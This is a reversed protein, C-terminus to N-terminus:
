IENNLKYMKCIYKNFTFHKLNFFLLKKPNLILNKKEFTTRIGVIEDALTYM